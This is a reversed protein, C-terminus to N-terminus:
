WTLGVMVPVAHISVGDYPVYHYRIELYWSVPTRGIRSSVGAGANFGLANSTSGAVVKDLPVTGAPCAVSWWAIGSSCLVESVALPRTITTVRHYWGAGGIVYPRTANSIRFERKHNITVSYLNSRPKLFGLQDIIASNFPLGSFYYQLLVSQNKSLRYGLGAAFTGEPHTFEATKGLPTNVGAGVSATLRPLEDEGLCLRPNGLAMLLLGGLLLVDQGVGLKRTISGCTMSEIARHSGVEFSEGRIM